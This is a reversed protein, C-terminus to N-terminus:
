FGQKSKDNRGSLYNIIVDATEKPCSLQPYHGKAEIVQLSSEHIHAHLYDAVEIPVISDESCQIFLSPVSVEPLDKRHDSQFTAKAFNKMIVPDEAHFAEELQRALFPQDPTNILAAASATAWGVFNKEMLQLLERIDDESFGGYYDPLDNRYRPSPSIMILAQFLEPKKVSTLLGIMSSVSHGVFVVPGLKLEELVELLDEAYGELSSYRAGDYVSCDSKGSGVYDFLVVRYDKLFSPVLYKWIDQSCGFGHGFVVTQKGDGLINVHNRQMINGM